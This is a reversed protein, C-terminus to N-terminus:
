LACLKQKLQQLSQPAVLLLSMFLREKCILKPHTYVDTKLVKHGLHCFFVYLSSNAIRQKVAISTRTGFVMCWLVRVSFMTFSTSTMHVLTCCKAVSYFIKMDILMPLGWNSKEQLSVVFKLIRALDCQTGILLSSLLLPKGQVSEVGKRKM